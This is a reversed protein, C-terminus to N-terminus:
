LAAEYIGFTRREPNHHPGGPAGNSRGGRSCQAPSVGAGCHSHSVPPLLESVELPADLGYPRVIALRRVPGGGRCKKGSSGPPPRTWCIPARLLKTMGELRSALNVVPGFVTVKM